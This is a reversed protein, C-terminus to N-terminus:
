NARAESCNWEGYPNAPVLPNCRLYPGWQGDVTVQMELVMDTSNKEDGSFQADNVCRFSNPDIHCDYAANKRSLVFSTDGAVDGTDKDKLDLVNKMTM